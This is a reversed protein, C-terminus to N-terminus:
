PNTKEIIPSWDETYRLVLAARAWLLLQANRQDILLSLPIKWLLRWRVSSYNIRRGRFPDIKCSVWFFVNWSFRHNSSGVITAQIITLWLYWILHQINLLPQNSLQVWFSPAECHYLQFGDHTLPPNYPRACVSKGPDFNQPHFM